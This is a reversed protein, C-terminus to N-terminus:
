LAQIADVVFILDHARALDGFADLDARFGTAFQVWSLSLVRTRGDIRAAFSDLSLTGDPEVPVIRTEIGRWQQPYGPYVVSPSSAAHNLYIGHGTAASFETERYQEISM